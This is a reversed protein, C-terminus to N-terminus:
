YYEVVVSRYQKKNAQWKKRLSTMNKARRHPEIIRLIIEEIRESKRGAIVDSIQDRMLRERLAITTVKYKGRNKTGNEKAEIEDAWWLLM